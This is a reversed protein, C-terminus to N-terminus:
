IISIVKYKLIGSPATVEVMDGVRKGILSSGLPSENSIKGDLPSSEALGVIMCEIEEGLELDLLKLKCGFQVINKSSEVVDVVEANKLITEIESIRSEISAQKEKAAEYESNESLDGQARAEKLELAVDSRANVKLTNLERELNNKGEPTLVAKKIM